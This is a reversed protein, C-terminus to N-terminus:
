GVIDGRVPISDASLTINSAIGNLLTNAIDQVGEVNLIASEIQSIRVVLASSEEWAESLANYYTDVVAAIYSEIDAFTYGSEYTITSTINITTEAVAQIHSIHGIPALGNGEMDITPDITQQISAILETTPVTYNSAIVVCKVHGGVLEGSENTTRYCKVGGVGSIAKIKEKYDARNGGFALANFSNRWRQRFVETDEDNEAPILLEILECTTLGNIYNIPILTGFHKNGEVGVTECEVKYTHLTDDLLETVVYNLTDLNFREGITVSINFRGKLIANTAQKPEIGRTDKAIKILYARDATDGFMQQFIWELQIYMMAIEASNPALADYIISGERKDYKVDVSDLKEDLLTEYTKDEFM